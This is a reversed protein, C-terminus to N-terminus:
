KSSDDSSGSDGGFLRDDIFRISIPRGAIAGAMGNSFHMPTCRKLAANVADRYTDRVEAPMDHTTYTMRAPALLEGDRKFAFIITYEMGHRAKDRPPPVWCARLVDFMDQITNILQGEDRRDTPPKDQATGETAAATLRLGEGVPPLYEPFCPGRQFVSCFPPHCPYGSLVSCPASPYDLRGGAQAAAGAAALGIAGCIFALAGRTARTM